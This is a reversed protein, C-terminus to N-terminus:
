KKVIKKRGFESDLNSYPKHISKLYEGHQSYRIVLKELSPLYINRLSTIFKEADDGEWATSLDDLLAILRKYLDDVKASCECIKQGEKKIASKVILIESM